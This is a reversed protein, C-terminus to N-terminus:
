FLSLQGNDEVSLELSYDTKSSNETATDTKKEETASSNALRGILHWIRRYHWVDSFYMPTYWYDSEPVTLNYDAEGQTMPSTLSNGIKVYGACGILSLQIYCMLGAVRDIDQAAFLIHNQWNYKTDSLDAEAANAFAILMAGAGCCCDCVSMTGDKEIQDSLKGCHMQAMMKCINYPTFFQGKWHNGLELAMYMEGLFDQEKDREMAMILHRFLEPFKEQEQKTYKNIINLYEKERLEFHVKDISNSLTIAVLTIFDSWIEWTHFRNSVSSMIKIFEKQYYNTHRITSKATQAM